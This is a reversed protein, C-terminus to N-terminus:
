KSRFLESQVVGHVLTRLGYNDKASTQVIAQIAPDDIAAAPEGSAYTILHRVVGHALQAPNAAVMRRLEEIGSFTKGDPTTGSCDVALGTEWTPATREAPKLKIVEPNPRRYATRYGGTVDFSELAFGYGDFKAHCAQCSGKSSHLAIQERLTKAGRIDPSVSGAAPPPPPIKIGLLREAVWVGRKIPSTLTGNATVKMTASQTWVGGFPTDAPLNVLQLDFGVVEPLGYHHALRQNVLAWKPAVLDVVSLNETLMRRFTAQTEMASSIKLLDNYEPYVEVDPTTNDMGWLGLWQDTFDKVFRESKSSKLLRETQSRLIQPEGLQGQRALTLLEDDPTSNWLFYSLRTALATDNLRGPQEIITLSDPATMLETILNVFLPRLKEGKDLRELFTQVRRTAEADTLDRRYFRGGVRRVTKDLATRLEERDVPGSARGELATRIPESCDAMLFRYGPLPLEPEIVEVWQVALGPGTCKSAQTNKPVQVGIGLPILRFHDAITTVDNNPGTRFYVETELVTPKGPPAALTGALSLLQPYASTHGAYIGFPLPKDTQYGYVSLRLKHVGPVRVVGIHAGSLKGKDDKRSLPGSHTDSNFSVVTGDPLELHHGTSQESPAAWLRVTGSTKPADLLTAITDEAITMFGEMGAASFPLAASIKDYGDVRGDPPLHRAVAPRIGLIDLVTNAYEQRSLRRLHSRGERRRVAALETALSGRVWDILTKREDATLPEAEEPPMNGSEVQELMRFWLDADGALQEPTRAAVFNIKANQEADGHCDGCRASLVPLAKKQFSDVFEAAAVRDTAWLVMLAFALVLRSSPLFRKMTVSRTRGDPWAM